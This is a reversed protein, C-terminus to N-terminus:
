AGVVVECLFEVWSIAAAAVDDDAESRSVARFSNSSDFDPTLPRTSEPMVETGGKKM